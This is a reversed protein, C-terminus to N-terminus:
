GAKIGDRVNKSLSSFVLDYSHDILEKVLKLDVDLNVKVTNWHKKNMHYAPTIGVFNERLEISKEPDCKLNLGSFEDVNFLAFIKNGVKFVLTKQDFPFSEVAGEKLGCERWIVECDM